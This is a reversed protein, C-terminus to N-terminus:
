NFKRFVPKVPPGILYNHIGNTLAKKYIELSKDVAVLTKNLIEDTHRFAISIWPMLIGNKIMEQMFLTKFSLSMKGDQDKTKYSPSCSVGEVQFYDQLEHAKAIENMSTKLKHGYQWVYEIVNERKLYEETALFAGLGSMEAGHTTSLLFLREKGEFETSGLEMLERKGAVCSVSFGNGMAKGFTSLDPSVGYTHQAGRLDIRFGTIMEDLIFVIGNERCVAQVQKLFNNDEKVSKFKCDSQKACLNTKCGLIPCKEGVAEMVVCAIQNPYNSILEVLSSVDNYKFTKTKSLTDIPIGKTIPTSGIFWDDYSFFPQEACRAILERNTFARAIKVAATVATSGNKTFKVMDVSDILEILKEAAELEILSPRTLNNGFQIQSIAAKNISEESYGINVSRLAMGYDILENFSPDYVMVGKGSSLISPANSPFQDFGKSYTHAGGPIARLLRQQYNM